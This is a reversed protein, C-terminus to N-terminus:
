TKNLAEKEAALDQLREMEHVLKAQFESDLAM